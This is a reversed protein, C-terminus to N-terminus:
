TKSSIHSICPKPIRPAGRRRLAVFCFNQFGLVLDRILVALSDSSRILARVFYHRNPISITAERCCSGLPSWTLFQSFVLSLHHDNSSKPITPTSASQYFNRNCLPRLACMVVPLIVLPSYRTVQGCNMKQVHDTM